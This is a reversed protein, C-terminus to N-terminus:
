INPYNSVTKNLREVLSLVDEKEFVAFFQKEAYLGDRGECNFDMAISTGEEMSKFLADAFEGSDNVDLELLDQFYWDNSTSEGKIAIDGFVCPEFKAYLVGNPLKLFQERNIIKM